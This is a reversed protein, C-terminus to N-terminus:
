EENVVIQLTASAYNGSKRYVFVSYVGAVPESLTLTLVGSTVLDSGQAYVEGDLLVMYGMEIDDRIADDRCSIVPDAEGETMRTKNASILLADFNSLIDDCRRQNIPSDDVLHIRSVGGGASVGSIGANLVDRAILDLYHIPISKAKRIDMM